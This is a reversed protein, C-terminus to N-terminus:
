WATCLLSRSLSAPGTSARRGATVAVGRILWASTTMSAKRATSGEATGASTNVLRAPDHTGVKESRQWM